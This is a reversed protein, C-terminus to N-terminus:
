LSTQFGLLPLLNKEGGFHGSQNKSGGVWGGVLDIGPAGKLCYLPWATFSVVSRWRSGEIHRIAPVLVFKYKKVKLRINTNVNVLHLVTNPKAPNQDTYISLFKTAQVGFVSGRKSLYFQLPKWFWNELASTVVASCEGGGKKINERMKKRFHAWTFVTIFGKVSWLLCSINETPLHNDEGCSSWQM